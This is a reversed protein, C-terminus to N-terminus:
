PLSDFYFNQEPFYIQRTKARYGHAPAWRPPDAQLSDPPFVFLVLLVAVVYMHFSNTKM